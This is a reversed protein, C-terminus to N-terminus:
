VHSDKLKKSLKEIKYLGEAMDYTYDIQKMFDRLSYTVSIIIIESAVFEGIPMKGEFVLYGGLIFFSSMILGEMFFTVSLQRIVVRFMKRRADVFQTLLEDLKQFFSESEKPFSSINQLFYITEHKANSRELAFTIGNKGLFLIVSIFFIAFFLALLFLNVDFLLLIILSLLIKFILSSANLILLPMIKQISVVDFFYNMYTHLDKDTKNEKINYSAEAIKIAQNVFIKQEFKEMIYQKIVQLIAIGIFVIIVISSLIVISFTAHALVTNIIVASALPSILLLLAELLSYYLLYFINKKDEKLLDIVKEIILSFTSVQTKTSM